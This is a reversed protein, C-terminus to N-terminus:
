KVFNGYKKQFTTWGVPNSCKHESKGILPQSKLEDEKKDAPSLIEKTERMQNYINEPVLVFTESMKQLKFM